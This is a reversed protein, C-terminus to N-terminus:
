FWIRDKKIFSAYNMQNNHGNFMIDYNNSKMLPMYNSVIQQYDLPLGFLPHHMVSARWIVDPDKNTMEM